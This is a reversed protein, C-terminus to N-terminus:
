EAAGSGPWLLRHETIKAQGNLHFSAVVGKGLCAGKGVHGWLLQAALHLWGAIDKGETASQILHTCPM